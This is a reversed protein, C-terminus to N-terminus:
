YKEEYAILMGADPGFPRSMHYDQHSKILDDLSCNAAPVTVDMDAEGAPVTRSVVVDDGAPAIEPAPTIGPIHVSTAFVAIVLVVALFSAAIALRPVAPATPRLDGFWSSVLGAITGERREELSNMVNPTFSESPSLASSSRLSESITHTSAAWTECEPCGELHERVDSPLAATDYESLDM